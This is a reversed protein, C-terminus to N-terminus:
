IGPRFNDNEAHRRLAILNKIPRQRFNAALAQEDFFEFDGHLFTLCVERHM